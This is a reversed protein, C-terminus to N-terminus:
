VIGRHLFENGMPEVREDCLNVHMTRMGSVLFMNRTSFEVFKCSNKNDYKSQANNYSCHIISKHDVMLM